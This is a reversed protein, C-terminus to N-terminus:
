SYDAGLMARSSRVRSREVINKGDDNNCRLDM